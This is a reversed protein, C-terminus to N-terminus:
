RASTIYLPPLPHDTTVTGGKESELQVRFGGSGSVIFQVRVPEMGPITDLEVRNPRRKVPDINKVFRDGGKGASIVKVDPGNLTLVDPSSVHNKVDQETRTPIL